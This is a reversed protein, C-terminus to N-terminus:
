ERVWKKVLTLVVSDEAFKYDVGDMILRMFHIGMGGTPPDAMNPVPVSEPDFRNSTYELSIALGDDSQVCHVRILGGCCNGHRVANSLSEGAALRIDDLIPSRFGIYYAFDCIKDRGDCCSKIDGPISFTSQINSSPDIEWVNREMHGCDFDFLHRVGAVTLIHDLQPNMSLIRVTCGAAQADQAGVILVRVGSSDVFDLEGLELDLRVGCQGIVREFASDLKQCNEYDLEGSVTILHPTETGIHLQLRTNM